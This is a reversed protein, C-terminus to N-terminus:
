LSGRRKPAQNHHAGSSLWSTSPRKPGSGNVSAKLASYIISLARLLRMATLAKIM